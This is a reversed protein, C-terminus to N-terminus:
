EKLNLARRIFYIWIPISLAAIILPIAPADTFSDKNVLFISFLYIGVALSAISTLSYGILSVFTYAKELWLEKKETKHLVYQHVGFLILMFVFLISGNIIDSTRQSYDVCYRDGNIEVAEGNYCEVFSEKTLAEDYMKSDEFSSAKYLTYSFQIGFPYSLAGRIANSAGIVATALTIVSITYLYIQFLVKTSLKFPKDQDKRKVANIIVYVITGVVALPILIGLIAFIAGIMDSM